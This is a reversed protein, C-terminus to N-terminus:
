RRLLPPSSLALALDDRPALAHEREIEKLEQYNQSKKRALDARPM